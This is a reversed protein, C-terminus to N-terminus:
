PQHCPRDAPIDHNYVVTSIAKQFIFKEVALFQASPEVKGTTEKRVWDMSRSVGRTWNDTFTIGGGFESLNNLDNAKLVGDGISIVMKPSIVAGTLRMGIIAVKMKVLLEEGVM